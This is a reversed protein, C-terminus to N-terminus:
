AAQAARKRELAAQRMEAFKWLNHTLVGWCLALERNIFGKARSLTGFFNRKLIAIRGETQARRRQLKVFGPDKMKEKLDSVKRPCTADRTGSTELGCSNAASAFGRDTAIAGPKRGTRSWVRELSEFLMQSDAPASEQFLKWDIIVGQSNEGFLATNGFEVRAGAKGRLVVHVDREYFSLVKSENPVTEERLIRCQVQKIAAPLQDLINNIRKIIQDAQGRSFDTSQWKEDLLDRHSRAHRAVIDTLSKMQRVLRKRRKKGKEDAKQHTMAICLKNIDRMFDDPDSMRVHLGATRILKVSKTLTRVADRFLVWDVPFHINAEVCTSDLFYAELDLHEPLRIEGPRLIAARLLRDILESVDAATLWRTFDNITSKGPIWTVDMPDILCFWQLINSLAIITSLERCSSRMLNQLVTVRLATRCRHQYKAQTEISGFLTAGGNSQLELLRRNILLEVCDREIGSDHLLSDIQILRNRLILFDAGGRINPLVPPLHSEFPIVPCSTMSASYSAHKM